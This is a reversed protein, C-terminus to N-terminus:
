GDVVKIVIVSVSGAMSPIPAPVCFHLQFQTPHCLAHVIGSSSIPLATVSKHVSLLDEKPYDRISHGASLISHLLKKCFGSLTLYTQPLYKTQNIMM